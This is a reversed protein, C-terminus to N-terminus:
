WPGPKLNIRDSGASGSGITFTERPWYNTTFRDMIALITTTVYLGWLLIEYKLLKKKSWPLKTFADNKTLFFGNEIERAWTSDRRGNAPLIKTM